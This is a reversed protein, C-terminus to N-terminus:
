ESDKSLQEIEKLLEDRSKSSLAEDDKQALLDKMKALQAAKVARNKKKDAEEVKFAIVHKLIDLKLANHSTPRRVVASPIFSEEEEGRLDKNVKKAIADLDPLGLDWLDETALQGRTTSFRLKSRLAKEFMVESM